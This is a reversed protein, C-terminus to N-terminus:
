VELASQVWQEAISIRDATEQPWDASQVRFPGTALGLVVAATRRRLDNPDVLEDWIRILLSGLESVRDPQSSMGSWVALHGLMTAADDGPRGWGYTDVDLLGVVSGDEVLLQSEYYDGHSPTDPDHPEPGIAGIVDDVRAALEPAVAALVQGTDILRGIPSPAEQGDPPPPMRRSLDVIEAPSPVAQGQDELVARLTKGGVAQLAILGLETSFGHSAPVPLAGALMRHSRHLAEVKKPRVLKLYLGEQAGSVSVVARRGPRYAVLRTDVTGPPGGIDELLRGARNHDMAPALGPLAPDHPVRWVGVRGTDGEVILAGEPIRGAVCVYTSTGDLEGGTISVRHRTTIAAGPWWTVQLLEGDTVRGGVSAVAAEIPPPSSSGLLTAVM